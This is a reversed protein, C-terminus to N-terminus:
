PTSNDPAAQISPRSIWLIPITRWITSASPTQSVNQLGGPGVAPPADAAADDDAADIRDYAQEELM